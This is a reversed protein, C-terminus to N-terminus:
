FFNKHPPPPALPGFYKTWLLLILTINNITENSDDFLQFLNIIM